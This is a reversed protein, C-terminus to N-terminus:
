VLQHIIGHFKVILCIMLVIRWVGIFSIIDSIGYRIKVFLLVCEEHKLSNYFFRDLLYSKGPPSAM